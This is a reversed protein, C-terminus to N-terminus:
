AQLSPPLTLLGQLGPKNQQTALGSLNLQGKLHSQAPFLTGPAPPSYDLARPPSQAPLPRGRTWAYTWQKEM